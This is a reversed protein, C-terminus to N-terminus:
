NKLGEKLIFYIFYIGGITPLKSYGYKRRNERSPIEIIKLKNKIAKVLIEIEIAFGNEKTQLSIFKKKKIAKFSYLVDTFSQNFIKNFLIVLFIVGSARIASKFGANYDLDYSGGTQRSCIVLDYGDNLKSNLLSIDKIDPAGDGDFFVVNEFKAFKIAIRQASGKGKGDDKVYKVKNKKCIFKTGDNSNADIVILDSSVKKLKPLLFTLNKAENKCPIIISIKKKSM